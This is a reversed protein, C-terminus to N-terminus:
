MAVDAPMIKAVVKVAAQLLVALCVVCGTAPDPGPSPLRAANADHLNVVFSNGDGADGPPNIATSEIEEIRPIIDLMERAALIRRTEIPFM